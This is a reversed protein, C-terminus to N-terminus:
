KGKVQSTIIKSKIWWKKDPDEISSMVELVKYKPSFKCHLGNKENTRLINLIDYGTKHIIIEPTDTDILNGEYSDSIKLIVNNSFAVSRAGLEIKMINNDPYIYISGDKELDVFNATKSQVLSLMSPDIDFSIKHELDRTLKKMAIKKVVNEEVCFQNINCENEHFYIKQAIYTGPINEGQDGKSALTSIDISFDFSNMKHFTEMIDLNARFKQLENFSLKVASVAIEDKKYKFFSDEKLTMINTELELRTSPFETPNIAYFTTKDKDVTFMGMSVFRTIISLFNSFAKADHMETKVM